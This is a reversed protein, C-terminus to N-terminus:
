KKLYHDLRNLLHEKGIGALCIRVLKRRNEAIFEDSAGYDKMALECDYIFHRLPETSTTRGNSNSWSPLAAQAVRAQQRFQIALTRVEGRDPIKKTAAYWASDILGELDHGALKDLRDLFDSTVTELDELTREYDGYTPKKQELNDALQFMGCSAELREIFSADSNIGTLLQKTKESFKVDPVIGGSSADWRVQKKTNRTIKRPM